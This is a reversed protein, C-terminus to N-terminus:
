ADTTLQVRHALRSKLDHIFHYAEGARRQGVLWCPVLKSDACMAVWTWTDGYGKAKMEATCNKEKALTFTWVEDCQVRHCKLNVFAKDQYRSCAEGLEVLLRSVTRKAVGTMRVTSRISNGEVLAAVVQARKDTSLKNM